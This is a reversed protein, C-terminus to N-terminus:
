RDELLLERLMQASIPAANDQGELIGEALGRKEQHLEVIREEISGATVLRYVTVPRAQGIRHARGLAQDEAAPNWWPDVIIVYDAATLNLGFGGAKLSLLFVDGEGRQFAEVRRGREAAPTAGDLQQYAIGMQGLREAILALYSTFQSFVLAKHAGDVLDRVIHEFDRLKAGVLGTEPAVLRPDCAALRLRTLEALVQFSAKSEGGAAEAERVKEGAARRLAELLNREASAPEVRHVIETRPPLDDLVQAKTRRLLFPGVLRRLRNRAAADRDKEIPGAFRQGFRAASGLLGPNILHMISWLDALRNEVPTGTLALRFHAEIGAVARSRQSAANKLAQAEDIVLTAWARAAFPSPEGQALAYSAVVVDYAGATAILAARGAEDLEGYHKAKLAPAFRAAEAIWNACVSTPALVLAAGTSARHLLLGLTQITKGLGMDDALCAGLGAHALRAMWAFGAQQYERLETLLGETAPELRGAADLADLRAQWDNNGGLAAGELGAQLWAASARPLRLGDREDQGAADLDALQRRLRESLALYAGEGLAIFRSKSARSLALLESLGLVRGEDVKVEGSLAFWDRGSAVRVSLATSDVRAVNLPKGRPWELAAIAPLTPLTEVTRLALEADELLWGAEGAQGDDLFPLAELVARLHAREQALDRQTAVSAGEHLTLIRERGAGPEVAPGFDGFPMALLRLHLGEGQPTLRARLRADGPVEEGGAADSHLQFHASLARLAADLEARAEGPVTWNQAVLEAVQRQAATVRILRARDPADRLLRVSNRRQAEKETLADATWRHVPPAPHALSPPDIHFVFCDGGEAGKNSRTGGPNGPGGPDGRVGSLAGKVSRRRVELTPLSEALEVLRDPADEFVV